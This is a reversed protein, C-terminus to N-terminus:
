ESVGYIHKLCSSMLNQICERMGEIYEVGISEPSNEDLDSLWANFMIKLRDYNSIVSDNMSFIVEYKEYHFILLEVAQGFEVCAQPFKDIDLIPYMTHILSRQITLTQDLLEIYDRFIEEQLQYFREKKVQRNEFVKQLLWILVGNFAIPVFLTIWDKGEM